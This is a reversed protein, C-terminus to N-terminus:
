IYWKKKKFKLYFLDKMINKFVILKYSVKLRIVQIQFEGGFIKKLIVRRHHGNICYNDKSISIYGFIQPSWGNVEISKRLVDWEYNPDSYVGKSYNDLFGFKIDKLRILDM